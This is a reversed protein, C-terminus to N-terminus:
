VQDHLILQECIKEVKDAKRAVYRHLHMGDLNVSLDGALVRLM